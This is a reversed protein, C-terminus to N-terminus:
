KFQGSAWRPDATCVLLDGYTKCRDPEGPITGRYREIVSPMFVRVEGEKFPAEAMQDDVCQREEHWRAVFMTNVPLSTESAVLIVAAAKQEDEWNDPGCKFRPILTLRNSQAFVQRLSAADVPWTAAPNQLHWMLGMRMDITDRLQLASACILIAMGLWAPRIKLTGLILSLLLIYTVAWFMRGSSRFNDFIANTPYVDMFKLSGIGINNSLSIFILGIALIFLGGHWRISSKIAQRSLILVAVLLFIIGAGLYNYGEWASDPTTKVRKLEFPLLSSGAPWIPSLLNMAYGGFKGGGNAGLYGLLSVSLFSLIFFASSYLAQVRLTGNDRFFSTIPVALFIGTTMFFLYPHVLLAAINLMLACAWRLATGKRSLHFYGGLALILIFHATLAAHGFRNWWSPICLSIVAICVAPILRKEGAARLCWVAAIPQLALSIGYWLMIGHFSEPLIGRISKLIIALIPIADVFAINIGNPTDLNGATLLPWRWEDAIFYRQGIIHQALDMSTFGDHSTLPFLLEVPFTVLSFYAGLAAAILYAIVAILNLHTKKLSIESMINKGPAVSRLIWM